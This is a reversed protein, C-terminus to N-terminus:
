LHSKSTKDRWLLASSSPGRVQENPVVYFDQIKFDGMFELYIFFLQCKNQHINTKTHTKKLSISRTSHRHGYEFRSSSREFIQQHFHQINGSSTSLLRTHCCCFPSHSSSLPVLRRVDLNSHFSLKSFDVLSLPGWYRIRNGSTASTLSIHFQHYFSPWVTTPSLSFHPRHVLNVQLSLHPLLPCDILWVVLVVIPWILWFVLGLLWILWFLLGSQQAL